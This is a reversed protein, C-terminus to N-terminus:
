YETTVDDMGHILIEFPAKTIRADIEQTFDQNNMLDALEQMIDSLKMVTEALAEDRDKIGEARWGLEDPVSKIAINTMNIQSALYNIQGTAILIKSFSDLKENM